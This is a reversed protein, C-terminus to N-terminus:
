AKGGSILGFLRRPQTEREKRRKAEERRRRNEKRTEAGRKAAESRKIYDFEEKTIPAPIKLSGAAFVMMLQFFIAAWFEPDLPSLATVTNLAQDRRFRAQQQELVDGDEDNIIDMDLQFSSATNEPGPALYAAERDAINDAKMGSGFFAAPVLMAAFAVSRAWIAGARIHPRYDHKKSTAVISAIVALIAFAASIAAWAVGNANQGHEELAGAISKGEITLTTVILLLTIGIMAWHHPKPMQM